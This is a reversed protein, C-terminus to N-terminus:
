RLGRRLDARRMAEGPLRSLPGLPLAEAASRLRYQAGRVWAAPSPAGIFGPAARRQGARARVSAAPALELRRDAGEQM